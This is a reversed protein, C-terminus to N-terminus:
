PLLAAELVVGRLLRRRRSHDADRSDALAAAAILLDFLTMTRGRRRLDALLSGAAKPFDADPIWPDALDLLNLVRQEETQSQRALFVAAWLETMAFASIRV